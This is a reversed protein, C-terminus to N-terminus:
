IALDGDKLVGVMTLRDEGITEQSLLIHNIAEVTKRFKPHVKSFEMDAKMLDLHSKAIFPHRKEGRSNMDIAFSQLNEYQVKIINKLLIYSEMQKLYKEAVWTYAHAPDEELFKLIRDVEEMKENLVAYDTITTRLMSGLRATNLDM